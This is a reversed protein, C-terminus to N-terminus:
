SGSGDTPEDLEVKVSKLTLYTQDYMWGLAVAAVQALENLLDAGSDHEIVETCVEGFEEGLIGLWTGWSNDHPRPGWKEIQEKQAKGVKDRVIVEALTRLALESPM